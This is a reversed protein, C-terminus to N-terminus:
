WWGRFFILLTPRGRQQSLRFPGAEHDPAQFDPCPSGVRVNIQKDPLASTAVTFLFFGALIFAGTACVVGIVGAGLVFSAIVLAVTALMAATYITPRLPVRVSKVKRMYLWLAILALALAALGLLDGFNIIIM